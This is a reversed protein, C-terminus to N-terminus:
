EMRYLICECFGLLHCIGPIDCLVPNPSRDQTELTGDLTQPSFVTETPVLRPLMGYKTACVEYGVRGGGLPRAQEETQAAPTHTAGEAATRAAEQVVM